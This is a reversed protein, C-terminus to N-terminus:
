ADDDDDNIIDNLTVNTAITPAITISSEISQTSVIPQSQISSQANSQTPMPEAMIQFVYQQGINKAAEGTLEVSKLTPMVRDIILKLMADKSQHPTDQARFRKVAETMPDFGLDKLTQRLAVVSHRQVGPNGKGWNDVLAQPIPHGTRSNIHVKPAPPSDLHALSNAANDVANSVGNDEPKKDNENNDFVM